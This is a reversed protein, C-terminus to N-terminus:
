PKEFMLDLHKFHAPKATQNENALLNKMKRKLSILDRSIEKARSISIHIQDDGHRDAIKILTYFLPELSSILNRTDTLEQKM